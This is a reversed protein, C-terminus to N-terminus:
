INNKPENDNVAHGWTGEVSFSSLFCWLVLLTSSISDTLSSLLFPVSLFLSPTYFPFSRQSQNRVLSLSFPATSLFLSVFLFLICNVVPSQSFTLRSVIFLFSMKRAAIRATEEDRKGILVLLVYWKSKFSDRWIHIYIFINYM